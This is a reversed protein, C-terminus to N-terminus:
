AIYKNHIRSDLSRISSPEIKIFYYLLIHTLIVVFCCCPLNNTAVIKIKLSIEQKTHTNLIDIFFIKCTENFFIICDFFITVINTTSPMYECIIIFYFICTKSIKQLTLKTKDITNPVLVAKTEYKM